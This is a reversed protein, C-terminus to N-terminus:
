GIKVEEQQLGQESEAAPSSMELYNFRGAEKQNAPIPQGNPWLGKRKLSVGKTLLWDLAEEPDAITLLPTCKNRLTHEGLENWFCGPVMLFGGAKWDWVIHFHEFEAARNPYLESIAYLSDLLGETDVYTGIEIVKGEAIAEDLAERVELEVGKVLRVKGSTDARVVRGAERYGSKIQWVLGREQLQLLADSIASQSLGCQEALSKQTCAIGSNLTPINAYIREVTPKSIHM